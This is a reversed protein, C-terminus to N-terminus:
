PCNGPHRACCAMTCMGQSPVPALQCNDVCQDYPSKTKTGWVAESGPIGPPPCQPEPGMGCNWYLEQDGCHMRFCDEGGDKCSCDFPLCKNGAACAGAPCGSSLVCNQVTSEDRYGGLLAAGRERYNLAHSQTTPADRRDQHGYNESHDQTGRYPTHAIEVSFPTSTWACALTAYGNM